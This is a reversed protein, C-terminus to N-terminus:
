DNIDHDITKVQGRRVGVIRRLALWAVLSLVAFVVLANVPSAAMWAGGPLGLGMWAGTLVGGVAFGAFFFAPVFLEVIGLVIGAAVWLWWASWLM